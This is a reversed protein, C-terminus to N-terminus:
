RRPAPVPPPHHSPGPGGYGVGPGGPPAEGLPQAECIAQVWSKMLRKLIRQEHLPFVQQIVGRAALEPVAGCPCPTLRPSAATGGGEGWTGLIHGWGPRACRPKPYPYRSPHAQPSPPLHPSPASGQGRCPTRM